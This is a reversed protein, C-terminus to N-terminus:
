RLGLKASCAPWAEWGQSVLVRQAIHIQELKTALQVRDDRVEGAVALGDTGLAVWIKASLDEPSSVKVKGAVQNSAGLLVSPPATWEDLKGDAKFGAPIGELLRFDSSASASPAPAAALLLLATSASLLPM